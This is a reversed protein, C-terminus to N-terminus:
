FTFPGTATLLLQGTAPQLRQSEKLLAAMYGTALRKYRRENLEQSGVVSMM